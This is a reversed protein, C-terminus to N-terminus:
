TFVCKQQVKDIVAEEDGGAQTAHSRHVGVPAPSRAYEFSRGMSVPRRGKLAVFLSPLPSRMCIIASADCKSSGGISYSIRRRQDVVSVFDTDNGDMAFASVAPLSPGTFFAKGPELIYERM